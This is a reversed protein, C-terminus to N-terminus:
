VKHLITESCEALITELEAAAEAVVGDLLEDALVEVIQAQSLGTDFLEAEALERRRRTAAQAGAVDLSLPLSLAYM